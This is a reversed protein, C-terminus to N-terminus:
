QSEILQNVSVMNNEGIKIRRYTVSLKKPLNCISLMTFPLHLNTQKSTYIDPKITLNKKKHNLQM